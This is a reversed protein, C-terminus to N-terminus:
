SDLYKQRKVCAWCEFGVCTAVSPGKLLPCRSCKSCLQLVRGRTMHGYFALLIVWLGLLTSLASLLRGCPKPEPVDQINDYDLAKPSQDYGSSGIKAYSIAHSHQGEQLIGFLEAETCVYWSCARVQRIM